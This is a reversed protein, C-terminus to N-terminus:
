SLTSLQSSDIVSVSRTKNTVVLPQFQRQNRTCYSHYRVLGLGVSLGVVSGAFAAVDGALFQATIIAGALMLLLPLMYVVLPGVVLVQEPISIEVEDDLNFDDAAQGDLLARVHHQRGSDLKNMLGHGCAKQASCSNCTSRRITEIWLSDAEVAVVRGTETIV